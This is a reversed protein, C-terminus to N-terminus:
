VGTGPRYLAAVVPAAGRSVLWACLHARFSTGNWDSIGDDRQEAHGLYQISGRRDAMRGPQAAGARELVALQRLSRRSLFLGDDIRHAANCLRREGHEASAGGVGAGVCVVSHRSVIQVQWRFLGFAADALR